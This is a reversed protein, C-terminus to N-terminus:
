CNVDIPLKLEKVLSKIKKIDYATSEENTPEVLVPNASGGECCFCIEIEGIQKNSSDYYRFFHHPIFCGDVGPDSSAPRIVIRKTISGELRRRQVQTLDVGKPKSSRERGDQGPQLDKILLNVRVADPYIAIPEDRTVAEVFPASRVDSAQDETQVNVLKVAFLAAAFVALAAFM